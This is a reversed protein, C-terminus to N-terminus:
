EGKGTAAAAFTRLLGNWGNDSDFAEVVKSRASGYADLGSHELEVRTRTAGEATFRVDVRTHITGDPKFDASIEWSLAIHSPPEFALVRGWTCEVDNKDREYWRGGVHPEIVATRGPGEGLLHTDIPWWSGFHHVFVDFAHAASTEVIIAKKVSTTDQSIM